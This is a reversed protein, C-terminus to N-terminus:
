LYPALADVLAQDVLSSFFYCKEYFVLCKVEVMAGDDDVTRM